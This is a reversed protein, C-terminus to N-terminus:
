GLLIDTEARSFLEPRRISQLVGLFILPGLRGLYMLLMVIIKEITSLESTIGTSLGATGYASVVEFAINLFQGGAEDHSRGGTHTISIIIIAAGVICFSFVLISIARRVSERKLAMGNIVAQERGRLEAVLFAVLARLSTVKIGGACSGPAAGVFMLSMMLLMTVNSIENLAITNFGATRCSVAQFFSALLATLFPTQQRHLVFETFFILLTGGVVLMLSTQLVVKSYWSLRLRKAKKRKFLAAMGWQWTEVLVYFGIGGLTILVFFLFLVVPNDGWRSLSDGFLAFGANCFASISHFLASRFSIERFCSLYLLLAGLLEISCTWLLIRLLFTGLQFRPDQLLNQGVAVRDTLTVRKKFLYISLTSLTMIGLGGIQILCLIVTQGTKSFSTATDVVVLGTVCTASTATFFADVLSITHGLSHSQPLQLAFAGVCILLAFFVIPFLLPQTFFRKIQM